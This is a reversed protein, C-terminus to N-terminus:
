CQRGHQSGRVGRARLLRKVSTLSIGYQEALIYKPVGVQFAAILEAIDQESLWDRIRKGIPKPYVSPVPTTSEVPHESLHRALESNLKFGTIGVM